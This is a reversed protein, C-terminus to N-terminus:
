GPFQQRIGFFLNCSNVLSDANKYAISAQAGRPACAMCSRAYPPAGPSGPDAGRLTHSFRYYRPYQARRRRGRRTHAPNKTANLYQPIPTNLYQGLVQIGSYRSVQGPPDIGVM